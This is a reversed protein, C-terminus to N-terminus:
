TVVKDIVAYRQGGAARILLVVDGSAIGSAKDCVLLFDQTLTLRQELQIKLPSASVVVGTCINAPKSANVADVAAKKIIDLLEPLSIVEM